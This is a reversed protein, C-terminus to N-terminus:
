LMSMYRWRSPSREELGMTRALSIALSSELVTTSGDLGNRDSVSTTGIAMETVVMSSGLVTNLM